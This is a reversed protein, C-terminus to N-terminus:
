QVSADHPSDRSAHSRADFPRWYWQEPQVRVHEALQRAFERTLTEVAGTRSDTAPAEIAPGVKISFRGEGERVPFVPLLTAGSSLAISPAGVFFSRYGTLFPVEITRGKGTDQISVVENRALREYVRRIVSKEEGRGIVVREEYRSEVNTCIPNLYRIGFDTESFGHEIRSVHAVRVGARHLAKKWALRNQQTAIWLVVGKGIKLAATIRQVGEVHLKPNWGGPWYEKLICLTDERFAYLVDDMREPRLAPDARELAREFTDVVKALPEEARRRQNQSWFMSSLGVLRPWYTQPTLGAVLGYAILRALLKLDQVAPVQRKAQPANARPARDVKVPGM